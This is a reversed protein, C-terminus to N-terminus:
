FGGITLLVVGLGGTALAAMVNFTVSGREYYM